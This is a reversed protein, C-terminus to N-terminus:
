ILKLRIMLTLRLKRPLPIVKEFAFCIIKDIAAPLVFGDNYDIHECM